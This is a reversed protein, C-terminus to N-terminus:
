TNKLLFKGSMFGNVFMGTVFPNNDNLRIRKVIMEQLFSAFIM